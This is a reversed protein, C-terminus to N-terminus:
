AVEMGSPEPKNEAESDESEDKPVWEKRVTFDGYELEGGVASVSAHILALNLYVPPDDFMCICRLRNEGVNQLAIGLGSIWSFYGLNDPNLLDLAFLKNDHSTAVEQEKDTLKPLVIGEDCQTVM